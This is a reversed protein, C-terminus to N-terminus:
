SLGPLRRAALFGDRFRVILTSPGELALGEILEESTLIAAIRDRTEPRCVLAADRGLLESGALEIDFGANELLPLEADYLRDLNGADAYQGLLRFLDLADKNGTFRRDRWALIKLVALGPRSAVRIPLDDEVQLHVSSDLAEEFGAVNM